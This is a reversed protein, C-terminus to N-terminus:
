PVDSSQEIAVHADPGTLSKVPRDIAFVIAAM